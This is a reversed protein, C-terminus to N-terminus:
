RSWRGALHGRVGLPRDDHRQGVRRRLALRQGLVEDAPGVAPRQDGGAARERRDDAALAGIADGLGVVRQDEGAEAEADRDGAGAPDGVAHDGGGCVGDGSEGVGGGGSRRQQRRDVVQAGDGGGDSDGDGDGGDLFSERLHGHVVRDLLDM